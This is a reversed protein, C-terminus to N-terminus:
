PAPHASPALEARYVTVAGGELEVRDGRVRVDVAGGRASAQYCALADTGLADAWYPGIACHASGTVPDEVVGANPAFFRSVVDVGDSAARATAIVGRLGLAEVDAATPDLARVAAESELVAFWDFRSRGAWVPEVGFAEAFGGPLDAAEPPTAPFDMAYRGSPKRGPPKRGARVQRVSLRGSRTDFRAEDDAGLRGSEYLLHAAALTAHGCLDVEVTPTFWRLGFPEGAGGPTVFATESLNMEAALAQMWGDRAPRDLVCVAAPNGSFPRDAFADITTVTM